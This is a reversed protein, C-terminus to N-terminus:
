KKFAVFDNLVAIFGNYAFNIDKYAFAFCKNSNLDFPSFGHLCGVISERKELFATNLLREEDCLFLKRMKLVKSAIRDQNREEFPWYM